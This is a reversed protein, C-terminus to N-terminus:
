SGAAREAGDAHAGNAGTGVEADRLMREARQRRRDRLEDAQRILQGIEALTVVSGKGGIRGDEDVVVVYPVANVKYYGMWEQDPDAVLPVGPFLEDKRYQAVYLRTRLTTASVIVTLELEESHSFAGARQMLQSCSSCGTSVFFLLSKRGRAIGLSLPNGDVDVGPLAPALSELPLGWEPDNKVWYSHLDHVQRLLAFIAASNLILLAWLGLFSYLWFGEPM